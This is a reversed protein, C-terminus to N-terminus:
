EVRYVALGYGGDEVIERELSVGCSESGKLEEHWERVGDCRGPAIDHLVLYSGVAMFPLVLETDERVGRYTHDGDVIALDILKDETHEVLFQHAKLSHSDAILAHHSGRRHTKSMNRPYHGHNWHKGDDITLTDVVTVYESIARMTGGAAAGIELFLGLEPSRAMLHLILRALEGPHQQIYYGDRKVRFGFAEDDSGM